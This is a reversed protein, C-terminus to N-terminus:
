SGAGFIDTIWRGIDNFAQSRQPEFLPLTLFSHNADAYELYRGDKVNDSTLRDRLTKMPDLTQEADGATICTPPFGAFLGRPNPLSLSAPSLYPNTALDTEPLDGLLARATYGNSLIPHVIDASRNRIMSCSPSSDHTRAWDLTPSMLLLGAPLPLSPLNSQTLYLVLDLALHGGSSVGAVIVNKPKFGIENVLYRYGAIDDLLNAPFLNAAKFPSALLAPVGCRVSPVNDSKPNASGSVHGGGYLMYLVKEGAMAAQGYQGDPGTKGSWYGCIKAPSVKNLKTASAVDGVMMDPDIGNVWAFGPQLQFAELDNLPSFGIKYMADVVAQLGRVAITRGM